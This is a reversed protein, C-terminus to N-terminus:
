QAGHNTVMISACMNSEKTRTELRTPAFWKALMASPRRFVSLARVWVALVVHLGPLPARPGLAVYLGGVDETPWVAARLADCDGRKRGCLWSISAQM